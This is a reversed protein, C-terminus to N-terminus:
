APTAGDAALRELEGVVLRLEDALPSKSCQMFVDSLSTLYWLVDREASFRRWVQEGVLRYSALLERANALKDALCVRQAQASKSPIAAIYAEKRPRWTPKDHAPDHDTCEAVIDAVSGGFTRRIDNLVPIGSVDDVADHLLAAIAEDETGGDSLVLAAVDLVHALYPVDTGRRLDRRHLASAYTLAEDFRETLKPESAEPDSM